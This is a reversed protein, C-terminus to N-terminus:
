DYADVINKKRELWITADKYIWDSIRKVQHRGGYWLYYLGTKHRAITKDLTTETNEALVHRIWFMPDYQGCFILEPRFRRACGDGDFLGRIFHSFLNPALQSITQQFNTRGTTIGLSLLRNSFHRDTVHLCAKTYTKQGSHGITQKVQYESKLFFNFKELHTKDIASLYIALTRNDSRVHGDAYLFGLWYASTDNLVDFAHTDFSYDHSQEWNRRRAWHPAVTIGHLKLINRIHTPSCKYQEALATAPLNSSQYLSVIEQEQTSTFLKM